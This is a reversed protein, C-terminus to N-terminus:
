IQSVPAIGRANRNHGRPRAAWQVDGCAARLRLLTEPNYVLFGPHAEFAVKALGTERAFAAEAAWYPIARENWQWELIELYDPPWACTVWNPKSAGPGDGPGNAVMPQATLWAELQWRVRTM